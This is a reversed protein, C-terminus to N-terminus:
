FNYEFYSADDGSESQSEAGKPANRKKLSPVYDGADDFGYHQMCRGYHKKYRNGYHCAEETLQQATTSCYRHNEMYRNYFAPDLDADESFGQEQMCNQYQKEFVSGYRCEQRVLHHVAPSCADYAQQYTMEQYEKTWGSVPRLLTLVVVGLVVGEKLFM